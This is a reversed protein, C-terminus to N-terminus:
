SALLEMRRKVIALMRFDGSVVRKWIAMLAADLRLAELKRLADVPERPGKYREGSECASANSALRM